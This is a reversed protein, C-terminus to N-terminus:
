ALYYTKAPRKVTTGDPQEEDYFYDSRRLGKPCAIGTDRNNKETWRQLQAYVGSGGDNFIVKRGGDLYCCVSAFKGKENDNFRVKAIIFSVDILEDKEKLLEWQGGGDFEELTVGESELWSLYETTDMDDVARISNLPAVVVTGPFEEVIDVEAEPKKTAMVKKKRTTHQIRLGWSEM